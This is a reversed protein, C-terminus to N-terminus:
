VVSKRDTFAFAYRNGLSLFSLMMEMGISKNLDQGFDTDVLGIIYRLALYYDALGAYKSSGKLFRMCEVICGNMDSSYSKKNAENKTDPINKNLLYSKIFKSGNAKGYLISEGMKISHEDPLLTYLVYILWLINVASEETESKDFSKVYADMAREFMSRAVTGTGLKLDALLRSTISYGEAFSADKLAEDSCAVPFMIEFSSAINEWTLAVKTFDLSSFDARVFEDLPRGYRAAIKQLTDLDPQRKGSEYMSITNGEVNLFRGLEEQTEGHAKRLDRINKGLKPLEIGM